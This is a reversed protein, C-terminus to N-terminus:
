GPKKLTRPVRSADHAFPVKSEPWDRRCAWPLRAPRVPVAFNTWTREVDTEVGGEDHRRGAVAHWGHVDLVTAHDSEVRLIGDRDVVLLRNSIPGGAFRIGFQKADTRTMAVILRDDVAHTSDPVHGPPLRCQPFVFVHGVDKRTLRHREQFLVLPLREEEHKREVVRVDRSHRMWPKESRGTESAAAIRDRLCIPANTLHQGREVAQLEGIVREDYEGAVVSRDDVIPILVFRRLLQAVM